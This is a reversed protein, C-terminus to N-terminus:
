LILWKLGPVMGVWKQKNLWATLSWFSGAQLSGLLLLSLIYIVHQDVVYSTLDPRLFDLPLRYLLMLLAGFYTALRVGIGLILALGLLVLGWENIFNIAPLIHPSALWSYFGTLNQAHSLYGAASFDPNSVQKWGSYLFLWGLSIRFLFIIVNQKKM